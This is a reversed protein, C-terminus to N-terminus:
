IQFLDHKSWHCKINELVMFINTYGSCKKLYLFDLEICLSVFVKIYVQHSRMSAAMLAITPLLYLDNEQQAM